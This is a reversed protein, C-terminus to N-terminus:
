ASRIVVTGLGYDIEGYEHDLQISSPLEFNEEILGFDIKNRLICFYGTPNSGWRYDTALENGNELLHKLIPELINYKPGEVKDSLKIM